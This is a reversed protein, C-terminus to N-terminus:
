RGAWGRAVEFFNRLVRDGDPHMEDCSEPHFQVGFVPRDLRELAQVPCLATSARVVFGAPAEPLHAAHLEFFAGTEGLGRFLPCRPDVQVPLFGSEKRQGPRYSPDPDVEGEKLPGLLAWRVGHAYGILQHGMCIGLIPVAAARIVDLLGEVSTEDHQDWPTSRGGLVVATPGLERLRRPSVESFHVAECPKQAAAALRSVKLELRARWAPGHVPDHPLRHHETDVYLVGM